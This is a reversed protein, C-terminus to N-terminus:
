ARPAGRSLEAGALRRAEQGSSTYGYGANSPYDDSARWFAWSSVCNMVVGILREKPISEIAKLLRKRDSHDQRAVLIVGDCVSQILDYDTVIGMPPSDILVFDFHERFIDCTSRWRASDLLEAPNATHLGAPIFYLNPAEAVRCVAERWDLAGTLVETLGPERPVGLMRALTSRRFDSDVLLVRIDEKLALAGAINVANVSKGDGVGTSSVCLVGPRRPDHLLRTRIIRYREAAVENSGDFPLIPSGAPLSVSVQRTVVFSAPPKFDGDTARRNRSPATGAAAPAPPVAAPPASPTAASPTSAPWAPPEESPAAPPISPDALQPDMKNVAEYFKSM